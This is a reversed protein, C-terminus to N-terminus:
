AMQDPYELPQVALVAAELPLQILLVQILLPQELWCVALEVAVATLFGAVAVAQFL